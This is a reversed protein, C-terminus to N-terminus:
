CVQYVITYGPGNVDDATGQRVAKRLYDTGWKVSEAAAATKGAAEYGKPFAVLGWALMATTFAIPMTM